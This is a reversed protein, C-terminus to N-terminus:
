FLLMSTRLRNNSQMGAYKKGLQTEAYCKPIHQLPDPKAYPSYQNPKTAINAQSHLFIDMLMLMKVTTDEEM